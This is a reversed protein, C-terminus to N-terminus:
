PLGWVPHDQRSLGWDPHAELFKLCRRLSAPDEEGDISIPQVYRFFFDASGVAGAISALDLGNLGEVLKLEHGFRQALHASHPSISLWDVPDSIPKVGSSAVAVLFGARRLNRVLPGLEFDSPEGGTIWVWRDRTGAPVVAEIERVLERTEVRRSVSYDTDCQPCGVSCGALRLFAMQAGRLHGEGQLSWFVGNPSIPYKTPM